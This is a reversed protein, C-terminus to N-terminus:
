SQSKVQWQLGAARCIEQRNRRKWVALKESAARVWGAYLIDLVDGFITFLVTSSKRYHSLGFAGLQPHLGFTEAEAPLFARGNNISLPLRM